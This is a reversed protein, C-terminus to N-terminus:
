QSLLRVRFAQAVAHANNAAGLKSRVREMHYSVTRESIGLIAGTEWYSKGEACWCLCQVERGTLSLPGRSAEACRRTTGCYAGEKRSVQAPEVVGAAPGYTRYASTDEMLRDGQQRQCELGPLTGRRSGLGRGCRNALSASLDRPVPVM